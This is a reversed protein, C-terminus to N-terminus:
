FSLRSNDSNLEAGQQGSPGILQVQLTHTGPFTSFFNGLELAQLTEANACTFRYDADIDSHSHGAHHEHGTNGFLPSHLQIEQVACQAEDPLAFLALPKELQQHTTAVKAKDAESSAAHEFGVLNIAPSELQIELTQGDLAVNLSAVGHEHKGLSGHEEVHSHDHAQAFLPLLVFLLAPLTRNM